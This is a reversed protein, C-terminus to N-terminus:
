LAVRLREIYGKPIHNYKDYYELIKQKKNKM